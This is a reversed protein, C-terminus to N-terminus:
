FTLQYRRFDAFPAQGDSSGLSEVSRVAFGAEAIAAEFADNDATTRCARELSDIRAIENRAHAAIQEILQGIVDSEVVQPMMLARRVAEAIEWAASQPGFRHAGEQVIEAIALPTASFANTRNALISQALAFLNKREFIWGIQHRRDRNHKLIPGDFRHTVLGLLGGPMLVRAVERAVRAVNGYEFGFQSVVADFNQDPFPLEEMPVGALITTKAPPEPLNPALDVGTAELGLCEEVLWRLVRADGTALDLVRSDPPLQRAFDRWAERQSQEIGRWGDPLCGGSGQGRQQSWFDGWAKEDAVTM